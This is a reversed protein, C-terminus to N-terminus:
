LHGCHGEEFDIVGTGQGRTMEAYVAHIDASPPVDVSVFHPTMGECECGLNAMRDWFEKFAPADRGDKAFIRYTSHGGRLIVRDFHLEGDIKKCLIVDDCSVGFIYFPINDIRYSATGLDQAWIWETAFGHWSGAELEFRVKVLPLDRRKRHTSTPQNM